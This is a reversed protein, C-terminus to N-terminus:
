DLSVNVLRLDFAKTIFVAMEDRGLVRDPCYNGDGCGATIGAAALYHVFRCGGDDAAVDAFLSMGDEGAVCNYDGTGPVTGAFPVASRGVLAASIFIAMQWRDVPENPCYKDAACGVTVQAAAIYHIFRCGPDAPLVDAFVSTGQPGAVCNYNGMGPVEGSYPVPGATMAKALFAAMEWRSISSDPCYTSTGCGATIDNHLLTEIFSYGWRSPPVDTFSNGLHITWAATRNTTLDETAVLDIHTAPRQGQPLAGTEYCNGGESWCDTEEGPMMFGYTASEDPITLTFGTPGTFATLTGIVQKPSCGDPYHWTPSLVVREGPELLGNLNSAGGSAPHTDVDIGLASMNQQCPASSPVALHAVTGLSAKIYATMYGMDLYERKDNITHYYQNFDDQDDEIALVAPYGRSWFSAHDSATIGDSDIIPTLSGNLGYISVVDNFMTAIALDDPYGASGSTRTHIRLTPGDLQDWGIMDMNFVGVINDGAAQAAAAYSSSGLLGQEEGTFFVFRITRDFWYQSLIQAALMVGVSGSANDDAGPAVSGSPQDDLHATILVIEDPHTSGLKEGIVNRGSYGGSIWNQFTPALDCQQLYEYVYQTAKQIPTGSSTHRTAITYPSGEITVQNEGSLDGDSAYTAAQTVAAIIDAVRPDYTITPLRPVHSAPTLAMPVESFLGLDFGLRGLEERRGPADRVVVRRGDDLLVRFRRRAETRAGERRELAILYRVGTSDRDLVQAGFPHGASPPALVLAYTVGASDQLLAHVPLALETAQDRLDVRMLASPETAAIVTHPGALGLGVFMAVALAVMGVPRGWGSSM